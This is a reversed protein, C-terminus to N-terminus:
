GKLKTLLYPLLFYMVCGVILCLVLGLIYMGISTNRSYRIEALHRKEEDIYFRAGGFDLEDDENRPIVGGAVSVLRRLPSNDKLYHRYIAKNKGLEALTKANEEGQADAILRRVLSGIIRTQFFYVSFALMAGICIGWVLMGTHINHSIETSIGM